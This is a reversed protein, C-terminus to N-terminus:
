SKINCLNFSLRIQSQQQSLGIQKFFPDRQLRKAVDQKFFFCVHQYIPLCQQHEAVQLRNGFLRPGVDGQRLHCQRVQVYRRVLSHCLMEVGPSKGIVKGDITKSWVIDFRDQMRVPLSLFSNVWDIGIEEAQIIQKHTLKEMVIEMVILQLNLESQQNNVSCNNRLTSIM